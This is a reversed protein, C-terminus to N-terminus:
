LLNKNMEMERWITILQIEWKMVCGPIWLWFRQIGRPLLKLGLDWVRRKDLHGPARLMQIRGRPMRRRGVPAWIMRLLLRDLPESAASQGLRLHVEPNVATSAINPRPLAIYVQSKPWHWMLTSPFPYFPTQFSRKILLPLIYIPHGPKGDRIGRLM